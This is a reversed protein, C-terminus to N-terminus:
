EDNKKETLVDALQAMVRLKAQTEEELSAEAKHARMEWNQRDIIQRHWELKLEKVRAEARCLPCPEGNRHTVVSIQDWHELCVRTESDEKFEPHLNIIDHNM